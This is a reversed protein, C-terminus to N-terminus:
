KKRWLRVKGRSDRIQNKDQEFGLTRLCDAAARCDAFNIKNAERVKSYILVERTTIGEKLNISESKYTGGNIEHVIKPDEIWKHIATLFPHEKEFALNNLNSRDQDTQDLYTKAGSRYALLASKLISLRDKTLKELDLKKNGLEIIHFRRSGTEDVLFDGRNCTGVFISPRPHSENKLEYPRRFIDNSSSLLSKIQAADKKNTMGDLEALEFVWCTQINFFLDKINDQWTDCFNERGALIRWFSSKGIGQDGKLVLCTDFKCGRNMVRAIMGVLTIKMMNNSLEDNVGLYDTAINNINVPIINKDKELNELFEVIPHFNNKHATWLLGDIAIKSHTAYGLTSLFVYFNKLFDPDIPHHDLEVCLKLLNYRLRQQLYIDLRETLEGADLRTKLYVPNGKEDLFVNGDKDTKKYFGKPFVKGIKQISSDM